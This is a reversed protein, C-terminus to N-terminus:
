VPDVNASVWQGPSFAMMCIERGGGGHRLLLLSGDRVDIDDVDNVITTAGKPRSVRVTQLRAPLALEATDKPKAPSKPM